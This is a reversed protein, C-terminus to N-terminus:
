KDPPADESEFSAIGAARQLERQMSGLVGSSPEQEVGVTREILADTGHRLHGYLVAAAPPPEPQVEPAVFAGVIPQHTIRDPAVRVVLPLHAPGYGGLRAVLPAVAKWAPMVVADFTSIGDEVQRASFAASAVVAGTWFGALAWTSWRAFAPDGDAWEADARSMGVHGALGIVDQGLIPDRGKPEAPLVSWLAKALTDRFSAVFLRASIDDTERGV